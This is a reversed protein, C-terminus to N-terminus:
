AAKEKKVLTFGVAAASAVIADADGVDVLIGDRSVTHVNGDKDTFQVSTVTWDNDALYVLVQSPEDAVDAVAPQSAQEAAPPQADPAPPQGQAPTKDQPDPM